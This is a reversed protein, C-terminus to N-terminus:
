TQDERLAREVPPRLAVRGRRRRLHRGQRRRTAHIAAPEAHRPGLGAPRGERLRLPFLPGSLETDQRDRQLQAPFGKHPCLTSFGVIDGDPGVGGPVRQGLKILVGPADADPYSVDFPANAKLDSVNALRNSPYKPLAAGPAAKAETPLVAVSAAAATLAGAGSLFRRRGADVLLDCRKM